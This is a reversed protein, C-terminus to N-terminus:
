RRCRRRRMPAACTAPRASRGPDRRPLDRRRRRRRRPRVGQAGAPAARRVRGACEETWPALRGSRGPHYVGRLTESAGPPQRGARRRRRAPGAGRGQRRVRRVAAAKGSRWGRPRTEGALMLGLTPHERTASIAAGSRSCGSATPAARRRQAAGGRAPGAAALAADGEDGRQDSQRAGLGLRRVDRGREEAIFSWTVAENLGRAAATRRM